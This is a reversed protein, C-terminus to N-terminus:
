GSTGLKTRHLNFRGKPKVNLMECLPGKVDPSGATVSEGQEGEGVSAASGPTSYSLIIVAMGM